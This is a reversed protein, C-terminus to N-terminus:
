GLLGLYWDILKQGVLLTAVAAATLMTGFPVADKWGKLKLWMLLLVVVSGGVFAILLLPLCLPWGLALGLWFGLKVDGWGM